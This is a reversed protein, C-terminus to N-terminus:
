RLVIQITLTIGDDPGPGIESLRQGKARWGMVANYVPDDVDPFGSSKVQVAKLVRGTRGFTVDFVPNDPSAVTRVYKSFVPRKTIIELGQAAAPRGPLVVLADKLSSADSERDSREGPHQTPGSANPAGPTGPAGAPQPSGAHSNELRTPQALNSEATDREPTEPANGEEPLAPAPSSDNIPATAKTTPRSPPPQPAGSTSPDPEDHSSPSAPRATDSGERLPGDPRDLDPRDEGSQNTAPSHQTERKASRAPQPQPRSERRPPAVTPQAPTNEDATNTSTSGGGGAEGEDGSQMARAALPDLAPQEVKSLPATHPTPDSFGIWNPSNLTSHAIGLRIREEITLSPSPPAPPPNPTNLDASAVDDPPMALLPPPSAAAADPEPSVPTTPPPSTDFTLLLGGGQDEGPAVAGEDPTGLRLTTGVIASGSHLLLSAVAALWLTRRSSHTKAHGVM